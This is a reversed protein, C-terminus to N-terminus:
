PQTLFTSIRYLYQAGRKERKSRGAGWVSFKSESKLKFLKMNQKLCWTKPLFWSEFDISRFLIWSFRRMEVEQFCINYSSMVWIVWLIHLSVGIMVLFLSLIDNQEVSFVYSWADVEVYYNCDAAPTRCVYVDILDCRNRTQVEARRKRSSTALIQLKLWVSKIWKGIMCAFSNCFYKARSNYAKYRCELACMDDTSTSTLPRPRQCWNVDTSTLETFPKVVTRFINKWFAYRARM